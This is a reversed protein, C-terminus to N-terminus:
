TIEVWGTIVYKENTLPPNGRHTHTFSGPFLILKGKKPKIRLPYYLFETEGGDGVDNLYLIYTLMRVCELRSSNECHWVNYGEGIETKQIKNFFIAHYPFNSIISYKDAYEKYATDWFRDVFRDNLDGTGTMRITNPDHLVVAVDSIEHPKKYHRRDYGFGAHNMKIFYNIVDDCYADTVFNEYEMIFNNIKVNNMM